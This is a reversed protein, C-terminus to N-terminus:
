EFSIQEFSVRIESPGLTAALEGADEIYGLRTYRYSTPFSEYFLVLCDTGYLMLDGARIDGVDEPNVPLERSLYFYKENGNLDSMDLILPMQALLAQAAPTDYLEALFVAGRARVRVLYREVGQNPAAASPTGDVEAAHGMPDGAGTDPLQAADSAMDDVLHAGVDNSPPAACGLWALLSLSLYVLFKKQM